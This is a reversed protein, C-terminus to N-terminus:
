SAGPPTGDEANNDEQQLYSREFIMDNRKDDEHNDNNKNRTM